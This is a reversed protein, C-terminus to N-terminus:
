NEKRKEIKICVNACVSLNQPFASGNLAIIMVGRQATFNNVVSVILDTDCVGPQSDVSFFVWFRYNWTSQLVWSNRCWANAIRIQLGNCLWLLFATAKKSTATQKKSFLIM